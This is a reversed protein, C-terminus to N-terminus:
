VVQWEKDSTLKVTGVEDILGQELLQEFRSYPTVQVHTKTTWWDQILLVLFLALLFYWFNIQTKKDM